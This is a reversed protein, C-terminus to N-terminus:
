RGSDYWYRAALKDGARRNLLYWPAKFMIPVYHWDGFQDFKRTSYIAKIAPTRVHHRKTRRGLKWLAVHLAIDEAFRLGENYGGVADFDERRCYVVGTDIKLPVALAMLCAFTFAIGLSWREPRVGSAGVIVDPRSLQRVIENFTDPHMQNDADIFAILTGQAARAGANRAGAICRANSTVVKAGARRAVDATDDTSIDDSVIVEIDGPNGRYARRAVDVTGLLRPLYAAENHAPIVLSLLPTV